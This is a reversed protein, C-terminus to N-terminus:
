ASWPHRAEPSQQVDSVTCDGMSLCVVAYKIVAWGNPALGLFAESWKGAFKQLIKSHCDSLYHVTARFNNVSSSNSSLILHPFCPFLYDHLEVLEFKRGCYFETNLAM